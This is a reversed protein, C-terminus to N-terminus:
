LLGAERFSYYPPKGPSPRGVIVHDLMNIQFIESAERIRRTAMEDARNPEPDGSPHNHCLVFSHAGRVIVPRLVESPNCPAAFFGGTSVLHWGILRLRSNLALVVVHEKEPEYGRDKEVIDRYFRYIGEPADINDFIFAPAHDVSVARFDQVIFRMSNESQIM